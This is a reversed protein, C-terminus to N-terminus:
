KKKCVSKRRLTYDKLEDLSPSRRHTKLFEVQSELEKIKVVYGGNKSASSHRQKEKEKLDAELKKIQRDKKDLLKILDESNQKEETLDLSLKKLDKEQQKTKLTAVDLMDRLENINKIHIISDEELKLIESNLKKITKQKQNRETTLKDIEINQQEWETKLEKYDQGTVVKIIHIINEKFNGKM